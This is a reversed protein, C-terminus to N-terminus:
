LMIYKKGVEIAEESKERVAEDFEEQSSWQELKQVTEVCLEDLNNLFTENWNYEIGNVIVGQHENSLVCLQENKSIAFTFNANLWEIHDNLYCNALSQMIKVGKVTYLGGYGPDKANLFMKVEEVTEPTDGDQDDIWREASPLVLDYGALAEFLKQKVLVGINEMLTKFLLDNHNNM